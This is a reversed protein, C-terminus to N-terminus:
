DRFYMGTSISLHPFFPDTIPMGLYQKALQFVDLGDALYDVSTKFFCIEHTKYEHKWLRQDRVYLNPM